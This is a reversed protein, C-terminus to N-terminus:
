KLDSWKIPGAITQQKKALKKRVCAVGQGLKKAIQDLTVSQGEICYLNKTRGGRKKPKRIM